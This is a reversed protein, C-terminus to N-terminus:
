SSQSTTGKKHTLSRLLEEVEREKLTRAPRVLLYLLFGVVPLVAVLVICAFMYLFSHTRLLIDRTAYFVLFILICGGFLMGVQVSRLMPDDALLVLWPHLSSQLFSLNM